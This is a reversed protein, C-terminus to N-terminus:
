PTFFTNSKLIKSGLFFDVMYAGVFGSGSARQETSRAHGRGKIEKIERRRASIFEPTLMSEYM